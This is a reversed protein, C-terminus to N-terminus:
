QVQQRGIAM